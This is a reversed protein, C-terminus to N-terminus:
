AVVEAGPREMLAKALRLDQLTDIDVVSGPPTEIGRRDTGLFGHPSSDRSSLCERMVAIVGGNLVLVKPLDQRRHVSNEVYPIVRGDADLRAMWNPHTKGVDTYSQVSDAGSEILLNVADDILRRPRIPVNAYLIVVIRESAELIEVAHRVVGGVPAEDTALHPPRRIIEVEKNGAAGAIEDDDTSVVVRGVTEAAHAADITHCIMAQDALPLYNKRPLGKSGARGIVVALVGRERM